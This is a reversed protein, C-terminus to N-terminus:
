RSSTAVYRIRLPFRVCIISSILIYCYRKWYIYEM